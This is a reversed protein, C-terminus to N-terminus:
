RAYPALGIAAGWLALMAYGEKAFRVGQPAHPLAGNM